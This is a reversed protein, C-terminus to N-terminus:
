NARLSLGERHWPDIACLAETLRLAKRRHGIELAVIAALYTLALHDPRIGLALGYHRRAGRAKGQEYCRLGKQVLAHFADGASEAGRAPAPTSPEQPASFTM